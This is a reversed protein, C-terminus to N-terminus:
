SKKKIKKGVLLDMKQNIEEVNNILRKMNFAYKIQVISRIILFAIYVIVVVLAIQGLKVVTSVGPLSSLVDLLDSANPIITLNETAM